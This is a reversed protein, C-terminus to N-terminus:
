NDRICEDIQESSSRWLRLDNITSQSVAMQIKGVMRLSKESAHM